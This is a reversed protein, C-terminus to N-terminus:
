HRLHEEQATDDHTCLTCAVASMQKKKVEREHDLLKQSTRGAATLRKRGRTTVNNSKVHPHLIVMMGMATGQVKTKLPM